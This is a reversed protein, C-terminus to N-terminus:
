GRPQLVDPMHAPLRWPLVFVADFGLHCHAYRPRQALWHQAARHLRQAQRPALAAQASELSDRRKVEVFALRKGRRVILDIEGMPTRVRRGIVMYGRALLALAAVWESVLGSRYRRQRDGRRAADPPLRSPRLAAM